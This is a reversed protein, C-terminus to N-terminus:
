AKEEDRWFLRFYLATAAMLLPDRARVHEREHALILGRAEPGRALAWRPLVIVHRLVGLVAPGVSESVLVPTGDVVTPRWRTRAGALRLLSGCLLVLLIVTGAAWLRVLPAEMRELLPVAREDFGAVVEVSFGLAPGAPAAAPTPPPASPRLSLALTALPVGLSLALAAVWVWRASRVQDRLIRELPLAALALLAGVLCTYLMWLVLM